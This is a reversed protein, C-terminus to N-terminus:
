GATIRTFVHELNQATARWSHFQEAELRAAQGIRNRLLRDRSLQVLAGALAEIDCPPVIWGTQGHRLVSPQGDQGSAIIALGAAKYDLLKLGSFESRGCYASVGIDASALCAAVQDVPLWGLFAVCDAVQNARALQKLEEMRQGSGIVSLRLGPEQRAALGFARILNELGQWPDFSGIFVVQIEHLPEVLPKFNLLRDRSLLNVVESGNEIVDIKDPSVQWQGAFRQRWGEGTAIYGAAGRASTRMIGFSIRRQWGHPAIGLLEMENVLDGNIELVLPIKTTHSALWGGFGFWGMREFFIDFGALEHRCAAAFRLSEFLSFYPLHLRSQIRRIAREFFKLLPNDLVRNTVLEFTELDDSKWIQGDLCAIVRVTHGLGSLEQCVKRVHNAPGSYPPKRIDPVGAQLLYGIKM